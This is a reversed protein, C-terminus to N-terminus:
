LLIPGIFRLGTMMQTIKISFRTKFMSQVSNCWIQGIALWSWPPRMRTWISTAPTPRERSGSSCTKEAEWLSPISFHSTRPQGRASTSTMCTWSDSLLTWIATNLTSHYFLNPSSRSTPSRLVRDMRLGASPMRTIELTSLKTSSPWFYHYTKPKEDLPKQHSWKNKKLNYKNYVDWGLWSSRTWMYRM